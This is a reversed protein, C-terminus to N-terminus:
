HQGPTTSVAAVRAPSMPALIRAPGVRGRYDRILCQGLVTRSADGDAPMESLTTVFDVLDEPPDEDDSLALSWRVAKVALERDPQRMVIRFRILHKVLDDGFDDPDHSAVVPCAGHKRGDRVFDLIVEAAEPCLTFAHVEDAMFVDLRDRTAFCRRKAVEAILAYAARGFLKEPPLRDFLHAVELELATPLRLLRTWCVVYPSQMPLVPLSPDFVTKGFDKRSFVRIARAIEQAASSDSAALHAELAGMSDLGHRRAGEESLLEGLLAGKESTASLGLLVTLFSHAARAGQAPGFLRLPDFSWRAHQSFDVVASGPIVEALGAWEGMDTRDVVIASGGRDIASLVIVKSTFSKGSGLDGCLGIASSKNQESSASQPDVLIPDFMSTALGAALLFGRDDGLHSTTIPVSAAFDMAPQLESYQRVISPSPQGPQTAWWLAEQGASDAVATFGLDDFYDQVVKVHALCEEPSPAAVTLLTCYEVEVEQKEETVRRSYESHQQASIDMEDVASSSANQRETVQGRLAKEARANRIMAQERSRVQVRVALDVDVPLHDLAALWEGGPFALGEQPPNTTVLTSQYSAAGTATNIVKVYRRKLLDLGQVRRNSDTQGAPDVVADLGGGSRAILSEEVQGREPLALDFGLGRQRAHLRLWTVQASTAAVPALSVPIKRRMEEAQAARAQIEAQSPMGDLGFASSLWTKVTFAVERSGTGQMPLPVAWWFQRRGLALTELADLTHECQQAWQPHAELDVGAVMREVVSAPDVPSCVGLLLGEGSGLARLLRAHDRRVDEKERAKRQGYPLPTLRWVAWVVGQRTWLLNGVTASIADRM